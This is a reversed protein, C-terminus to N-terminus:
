PTCAASRHASSRSGVSTTRTFATSTRTPAIAEIVTDTSTRRCLCSCSSETSRRPGCQLTARDPAALDAIRRPRPFVSTSISGLGAEEAARAQQPRLDGVRTTASSCSRSGPGVAWRERVRRRQAGVSVRAIQAAVAKGDLISATMVPVGRLLSASEACKRRTAVCPQLTALCQREPGALIIRAGHSVPTFSPTMPARRRHLAPCPATQYRMQKPLLPDRTRIRSGRGILGDAHPM